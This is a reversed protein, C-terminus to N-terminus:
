YAPAAHITTTRSFHAGNFIVIRVECSTLEQKAALKSHTGVTESLFAAGVPRSGSVKRLGPKGPPERYGVLQAVVVDRQFRRPWKKFTAVLFHRELRPALVPPSDNVKTFNVAERNLFGRFFLFEVLRGGKWAGLVVM